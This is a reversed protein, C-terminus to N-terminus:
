RGQVIMMLKVLFAELYIVERDGMKMLRDCRAAEERARLVKKRDGIKECFGNVIETMIVDGPVQNVLLKYFVSRYGKISEVSQVRILKDVVEQNIERKWFAGGENETYIKTLYVNQALLILARINREGKICVYDLIKKAEKVKEKKLIDGVVSKIEEYNPARIRVLLCRSKLAPILPGLTECVMFVRIRRSYKELTRRLAAQAALSLQEANYIVFTLFGNPEDPNSFFNSNTAADKILNLLVIRDNHKADSPCLEYHYRSTRINLEITKSNHKTSWTEKTTKLSKKYIASLLCNVRTKKGAGDPGYIILHPTNGNSALNFLRENTDTHFDLDDFSKPKYKETWLEEM